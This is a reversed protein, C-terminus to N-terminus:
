EDDEEDDEGGEYADIDATLKRGSLMAECRKFIIGGYMDDLARIIKKRTKPRIEARIWMEEAEEDALLSLALKTAKTKEVQNGRMLGLAVSCARGLTLHREGTEESTEQSNSIAVGTPDRIVANFDVLVAAKKKKPEPTPNEQAPKANTRRRATM